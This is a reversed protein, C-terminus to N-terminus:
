RIVLFGMPSTFTFPTGGPLVITRQVIVPRAPIFVRPVFPRRVIIISRNGLHRHVVFPHAVFPSGGLVVITRHGQRHGGAVADSPAALAALAVLVVLSVVIKM